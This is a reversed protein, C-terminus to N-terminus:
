KDLCSIIAKSIAIKRRVGNTRTSTRHIIYTGNIDLCDESAQEVKKDRARIAKRRVSMRPLSSRKVVKIERKYYFESVEHASISTTSIISILLLKIM